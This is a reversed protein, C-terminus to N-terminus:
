LSSQAELKDMISKKIKKIKERKYTFEMTSRCAITTAALKDSKSAFCLLAEAFSVKFNLEPNQEVDTNYENPKDFSEINYSPLGERFFHDVMLYFYPQIFLKLESLKIQIEKNGNPFM